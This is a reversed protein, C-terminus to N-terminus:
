LRMTVVRDHNALDKYIKVYRFGHSEAIQKVDEAQDFGVEFMLTAGKYLNKQVTSLIRRYYYLGDLGGDLALKPEKLIRKDEVGIERTRIYPPNCVILDFCGNVDTLLDSNIFNITTDHAKANAQAVLLAKRSIDVATVEYKEQHNKETLWDGLCALSIGIVGSGCCLDLIKYPNHEKYVVSDAIIKKEALEVLIETDFRPILVDKNVLFKRNYFYCYGLLYALPMGKKYKDIYKLAERAVDDNVERMLFITTRDISLLYCLIQVVAEQEGARSILEALKM